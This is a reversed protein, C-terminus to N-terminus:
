VSDWPVRPVSVCGNVCQSCNLSSMRCRVDKSKPFFGSYGSSGRGLCVCVSVPCPRSDFEWGQLHSAYMSLALKFWSWTKVSRFTSFTVTYIRLVLTIHVSCRNTCKWVVKTPVDFELKCLSM